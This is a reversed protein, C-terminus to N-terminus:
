RWTLTNIESSISTYVKTSALGNDVLYKKLAKKDALSETNGFNKIADIAQVERERQADLYPNSTKTTGASDKIMSLTEQMLDMMGANGFDGAIARLQEPTKTGEGYQSMIEQIKAQKADEPTQMGLMGGLNRGLDEGAKAGEYAGRQYWPVKSSELARAQTADRQAIQADYPNTFM